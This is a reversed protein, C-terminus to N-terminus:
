PCMLSERTDNGTKPNQGQASSCLYRIQDKRLVVDTWDSGELKAGQFRANAVSAGSLNANTFDAGEFDGSSLDATSLDTGVFKAEKAVVGFMSVGRMNSGSFNTQRMVGKTYQDKHLDKNSFDQGSIPINAGKSAGGSVAGAQLPLLLTAAAAVAVLGGTALQRLQKGAAPQPEHHQACTSTVAPRAAVNRSLARARFVNAAPLLQCCPARHHLDM